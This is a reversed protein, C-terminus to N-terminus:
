SPRVASPSRRRPAGRRDALRSGPTTAEVVRPRLSPDLMARLKKQPEGDLVLISPGGMSATRATVADGGLRDARPALRRVRRRGLAHRVLARGGPRLLRAGRPADTRLDSLSGRRAARRHHRAAWEEIASMGRWGPPDSPGRALAAARRRRSRLRARGVRRPRRAIRGGRGVGRGSRRLRGRGAARPGIDSWWYPLREYPGGNGAITDAVHEGTGIAADWHPFRMARLARAARARSRWM